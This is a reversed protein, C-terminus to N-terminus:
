EDIYKEYIVENIGENMVEWVINKMMNRKFYPIFRSEIIYEDTLEWIVNHVINSSYERSVREIMSDLVLAVPGQPVPKEDEKKRMYGKVIGEITTNVTERAMKKVVNSVLTDIYEVQARVEPSYLSYNQEFQNQQIVELIINPIISDELFENLKKKAYDELLINWLKKRPIIVKRTYWGRIHSQLM